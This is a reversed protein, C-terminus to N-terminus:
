WGRSGGVCRSPRHLLLHAARGVGDLERLVRLIRTRGCRRRISRSDSASVFGGTSPPASATVMSAPRQLELEVDPAGDGPAFSACVFCDPFGPTTPDFRTRPDPAFARRSLQLPTAAQLDHARPLGTLLVEFRRQLLEDLGERDDFRPLGKSAFPTVVALAPGHLLRRDLAHTSGHHPVKLATFGRLEDWWLTKARSWGQLPREVLDSGLIVRRGKWDLLLATSVTNRDFNKRANLKQEAASAVNPAPSLVRVRADGVWEESAFAADWRCAPNREWRDLIAAIADETVGREYDAVPDVGTDSGLLGEMLPLMGLRPWTSADGSTADDVIDALGRAHDLHPHTFLIARPIAAYHSLVRRAYPTGASACGDIALWEGPPVRVLVLEGVGPGFVLVHLREDDLPPLAM